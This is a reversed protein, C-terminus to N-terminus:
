AQNTIHVSLGNWSKLPIVNRDIERLVDLFRFVHAGFQDNRKWTWRVRNHLQDWEFSSISSYNGGYLSPYANMEKFFAAIRDEISKREVATPARTFALMELADYTENEPYKDLLESATIIRIGLSQVTREDAEIECVIEELPPDAEQAAQLFPEGKVVKLLGDILRVVPTAKILRSLRVYERLDDAVTTMDWDSPTIVKPDVIVTKPNIQVLVRPRDTAM